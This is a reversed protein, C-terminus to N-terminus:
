TTCYMELLRLSHALLHAFFVFLGVLPDYICQIALKNMHMHYHEKKEMKVVIPITETSNQPM